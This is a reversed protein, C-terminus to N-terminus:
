RTTRASAVNSYPSDGAANHARVRYSYTTRSARSTDTFTTATGAVTAVQAFTTCNSGTCREIRVETQNTAGNTWNLRIASRSLATATLGTPASPLPPANM